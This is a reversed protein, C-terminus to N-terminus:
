TMAAASSIHSRSSPFPYNARRMGAFSLFTKFSPWRPAVHAALPVHITAEGGDETWADDRARMSRLAWFANALTVASPPLTNVSLFPTSIMCSGSVSLKAFHERLIFHGPASLPKPRRRRPEQWLSAFLEKHWCVRSRLRPGWADLRYEVMGRRGQRYICGSWVHVGRAKGQPKM